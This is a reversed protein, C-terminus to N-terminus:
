YSPYHEATSFFKLSSTLFKLARVIFSIVRLLLLAAILSTDFRLALKAPM